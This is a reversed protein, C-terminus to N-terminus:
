RLETWFVFDSGNIRYYHDPPVITSITVRENNTDISDAMTVWTTNDTSTQLEGVTELGHVSVFIPKGTTNQYTTNAVRSATVDQGTQNVGLSYEAVAQALREGSVTGFDTSTDDEAQTQTLETLNSVEFTNTSQDLTGIDIWADDAETRMKLINNGSDYWLMNAYTTTPESAGASLSGLAQLADNLDSRFAPTLQDAIVLDHQSM